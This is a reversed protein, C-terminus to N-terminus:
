YFGFTLLHDYEMGLLVAGNPHNLGPLLLLLVFSVTLIEILSFEM